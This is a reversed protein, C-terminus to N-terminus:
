APRVEIQHNRIPVMRAHRCVPNRLQALPADDEGTAQLLVADVLGHRDLAQELMDLLDEGVLLMDYCKGSAGIRPRPDSATWASRHERSSQDPHANQATQTSAPATATRAEGEGGPAVIRSVAAVGWGTSTGKPRSPGPGAATTGAAAPGCKSLISSSTGRDHGTAALRPATTAAPPRPLVATATRIGGVGVVPSASIVPAPPAQHGEVSRSSVAGDGWGM